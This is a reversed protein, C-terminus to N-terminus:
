NDQFYGKAQPCKEPFLFDELWHDSMEETLETLEREKAKNVIDRITHRSSGVVVEITRQKMGNFHHELIKRYKVM